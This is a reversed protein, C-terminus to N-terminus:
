AAAALRTAIADDSGFIRTADILVIFGDERRVVGDIYGSNWSMGLDPAPEISAADFSSVDMVRDVVLGLTLTRDALPMDVVLIRTAPTPRHPSLGLRVRFDALPVNEGRVDTIGLLWDPGHPIQFIDTMDLVERVLSIPLAFREEGLGFVVSQLVSPRTM